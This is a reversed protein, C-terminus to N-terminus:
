VDVAAREDLAVPDGLRGRRRAEAGGRALHLPRRRMWPLVGVLDEPLPELEVLVAHALQAGATRDGSRAIGTISPPSCVGRHSLWWQGWSYSRQMSTRPRM